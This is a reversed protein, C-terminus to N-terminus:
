MEDEARNQEIPAKRGKDQLNKYGEGQVKDRVHKKPSTEKLNEAAEKTKDVAESSATKTKDLGEAAAGKAKEAAEGVQEKATEKAPHISDEVKHTASETKDIGAAAAQGVKKNLKSLQEKATDMVSYQRVTHQVPFRAFSRATLASRFMSYKISHTQFHHPFGM